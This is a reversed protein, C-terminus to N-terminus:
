SSEEENKDNAPGPVSAEAAGTGEGQNENENENESGAGTGGGAGPMPLTESDSDYILMVVNGKLTGEQERVKFDLTDGWMDFEPHEIKTRTLQDVEGDEDVDIPEELRLQRSKLKDDDLDYEGMATTMRMSMTGDTEFVAFIMDELDLVHDRRRTVIESLIVSQLVHKTAPHGASAAAFKVILDRKESSFESAAMPKAGIIKKMEELAHKAPIQAEPLDILVERNHDFMRIYFSGGIKAVIVLSGGEAPLEDPSEAEMLQLNYGKIVYSPARVHTWPKGIPLLFELADGAMVSGLDAGDGSDQALSFGTALGLLAAATLLSKM